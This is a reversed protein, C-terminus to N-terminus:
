LGAAKLYDVDIKTGACTRVAPTWTGDPLRGSVQPSGLTIKRGGQLYDVLNVATAPTAVLRHIPATADAAKAYTFVVDPQGTATLTVAFHDIGSLDIDEPSTLSLSQAHLNATVGEKQLNPVTPGLDYSAKLPVTLDSVVVASSTTIPSSVANETVCVSDAEATANLDCGALAAALAVAIASTTRM